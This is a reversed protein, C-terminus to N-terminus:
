DARSGAYARFGYKQLVQAYARAGAELVDMSQGRYNGPAWLNLCKPLYDRQFGVQKLLNAEKSNIRTVFVNVWAFGCYAQEGYENLYENEANIAAELAEQHIKQINM